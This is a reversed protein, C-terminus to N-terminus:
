AADRPAAKCRRDHSPNLWSGAAQNQLREMLEGYASALAFEKTVGKGNQGVSPLDVIDLRVSHLNNSFSNWKSETTFISIKDLCARIQRITDLPNRDKHNGFM